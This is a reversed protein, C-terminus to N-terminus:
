GLRGHVEPQKRQTRRAEATKHRVALCGLRAPRLPEHDRQTIEVDHRSGMIGSCPQTRQVLRLWDAGPEPSRGPPIQRLRQKATWISEQRTRSLFENRLKQWQNPPKGAAPCEWAHGSSPQPQELPCLRAGATETAVVELQARIQGAGQKEM